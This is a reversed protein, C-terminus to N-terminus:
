PPPSTPASEPEHEDLLADIDAEMGLRESQIHRRLGARTGLTFFTRLDRWAIRRRRAFRRAYFGCFPMVVGVFAAALLGANAVTLAILGVHWAPFLLLAALIGFSAIEDTDIDMHRPVQRSLWYPVFYVAGGVLAAPMGVLIAVLNRGLFAGVNRPTYARDMHDADLGLDDLLLNLAEVRRRLPEVVQPRERRLKGYRDALRKMREMKSERGAPMLREALRLVPLDEWSEVNLTLEEIAKEMRATLAQAAEWDNERYQTEFDSVPIPEGVWTAVDSRFERKDLYIMGLPVLRIGLRFGNEAEAGLAMRAAGTKLRQLSPLNHSIGEPFLCIAAGQALAAFVAAFTRTNNATDHGDMARYVPLAGMGAVFYKLLPTHFLPEKALFRVPRGAVRTVMIPDVLANAHNAVLIVPGSRPVNGAIHRRRYFLDVALGTIRTIWRYLPGARSDVTTIMARIPHRGAGRHAPRDRLHSDFGIGTAVQQRQRM